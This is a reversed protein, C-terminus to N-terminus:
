GGVECNCAADGGVGVPVGVWFATQGGPEADEAGEAAQHDCQSHHVCDAGVVGVDHRM